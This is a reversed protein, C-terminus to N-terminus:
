PNPQPGIQQQLQKIAEQIWELSTEIGQLALQNIVPSTSQAAVGSIGAGAGGTFFGGLGKRVAEDSIEGDSAIDEVIPLM